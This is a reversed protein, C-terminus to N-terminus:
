DEAEPLTGGLEVIAQRVGNWEEDSISNLIGIEGDSLGLGFGKIRLDMYKCVAIEKENM